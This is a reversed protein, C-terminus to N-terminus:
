QSRTCYLRQTTKLTPAAFCVTFGHQQLLRGLNRQDYLRLHQIPIVESWELIRAPVRFHGADPTTLYLVAGPVCLAALAAVFGQADAVHEIVESCYILDFRQGQAALQEITGGHFTCAPYAVRARELTLTNTEIGHAECGLWRAAETNYGTNSGVDLFRLPAAHGRRLARLRTGFVLPALKFSKRLISKRRRGYHRYSAAYMEPTPLRRAYILRCDACRLYDEGDKSGLPAGDPAACLPCPSAQM